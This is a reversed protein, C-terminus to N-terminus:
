LVESHPAGCQTSAESPHTVALYGVGILANCRLSMPNAPLGTQAPHKDNLHQGDTHKGFYPSNVRPQRRLLSGTHNSFLTFKEKREQPLNALGQLRGALTHKYTSHTLM